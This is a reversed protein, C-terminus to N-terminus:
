LRLQAFVAMVGLMARGVPSTTDLNETLSVLDVNYEQTLDIFDYIDGVNRSLRDLTCVIVVDINGQKIDGVLEQFGPGDKSGM